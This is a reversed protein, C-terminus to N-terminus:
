TSSRARLDKPLEVFFKMGKGPESEAHIAGRHIEVIDKTISLGLGTGKVVGSKDICLSSFKDFLKPMDCKAIGPGTDSVALRIGDGMDELSFEVEGNEPTFKSANNLLNNFVQELKDSDGWVFKEEPPLNVIFKIPKKEFEAKFSAAISRALKSMNVRERKMSAQGSELKSMDLLDDILRMLREINNKALTLFEVHDKRLSDYSDTLLIDLSNRINILPAKFEHSLMALFEPKIKNIRKLEDYLMSNKISFAAGNAISMLLDLDEKTFNTKDKKDTVNVVGLVENDVVLPVSIFSSTKYNRNEKTTFQASKEMDEMLLPKGEKAVWGAVSEGLKTRVNKIIEENMGKAIRGVLENKKKDLLMLSSIDATLILSVKDIFRRICEEIELSRNMDYIVENVATLKSIRRRLDDLTSDEQGDKEKLFPVPPCEVQIAPTKTYRAKLLTEIKEFLDIIDSSKEIYADAGIPSGKPMTSEQRSSFLIIPINRYKTDFKLLRSVNCGDIQPLMIDLIILDPRESRAKAIGERGDYAFVADYGRKTLNYKLVDVFDKDDDIILIKKNMNHKLSVVGM